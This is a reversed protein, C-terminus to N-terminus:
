FIKWIRQQIYFNRLHHNYNFIRLEKLMLFCFILFLHYRLRFIYLHTLFDQNQDLCINLVKLRYINFQDKYFKFISISINNHYINNHFYFNIHNSPNSKYFNLHFIQVTFIVYFYFILSISNM